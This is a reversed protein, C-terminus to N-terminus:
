CLGYLAGCGMKTRQCEGKGNQLRKLTVGRGRGWSRLGGVWPGITQLFFFSCVEKNNKSQM